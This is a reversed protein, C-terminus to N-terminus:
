HLNKGTKVSHGDYWRGGEVFLPIQFENKTWFESILNINRSEAVCWINVDQRWHEKKKEKVTVTKINYM